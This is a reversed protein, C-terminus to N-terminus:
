STVPSASRSPASQAILARYHGVVIAGVRDSTLDSLVMARSRAGCRHRFDADTAMRELADALAAPDDPPVLLGNDGDVVIERCGPVDTAILPRGCAAAEMLSVPLGERRSALVAAHCRAWVTRVDAVKGLWEVMPLAAWRELQEVSLSTQNGPDPAGALLLRLPIGRAVVRQHAEVLTSVGKNATMRGAFAVTVPGDAPEPLPAYHDVDVGSGRVVAVGDRPALGSDTLFRCDDGNEVTLLSNARRTVLRLAVGVVARLLKRDGDIFLDGLGTLTNLVCPVGAIRAALGGFVVPKLAVHHVLDPKERRYLRVLAAVAAVAAFPNASRRDWALPLLTFGEAQIRAGHQDVRTAVSVDFGADRAARAMPLRHAWFFWDETVLFLIRRRPAAIPTESLPM